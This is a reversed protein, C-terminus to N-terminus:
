CRSTRWGTIRPSSSSGSSGSGEPRARRVAPLSAWPGVQGGFVRILRAILPDAELDAPRGKDTITGVEAYIMGAPPLKAQGKFPVLELPDRVAVRLIQAPM